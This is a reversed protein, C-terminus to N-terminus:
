RAQGNEKRVVHLELIGSQEMAKSIEGISVPTWGDILEEPKSVLDLAEDLLERVQESSGGRELTESARKIRNWVKAVFIDITM